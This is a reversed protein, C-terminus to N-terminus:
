VPSVPTKIIFRVVHENNERLKEMTSEDILFDVRPYRRDFDRSVPGEVQFLRVLGPSAWPYKGPTYGRTIDFYSNFIAM